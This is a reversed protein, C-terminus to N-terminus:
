DNPEIETPAMRCKDCIDRTFPACVLDVKSWGKSLNDLWWGHEGATAMIKGNRRTLRRKRESM